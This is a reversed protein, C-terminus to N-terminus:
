WKFVNRMIGIIGTTEKINEMKGFFVWYVITSEM